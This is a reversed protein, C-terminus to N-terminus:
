AARRARRQQEAMTVVADAAAEVTLQPSWQAVPARRSSASQENWDHATYAHWSGRTGLVYGLLVRRPGILLASILNRARDRGDGQTFTPAPEEVEVVYLSQGFATGLRRATRPKGTM